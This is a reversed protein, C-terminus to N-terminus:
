VTRSYLPKDTKPKLYVDFAMCINRVFLRGRATVRIKDQDMTVLGDDIFQRLRELSDSFYADFRKPLQKEIITKDIEFDCMFRSIVQRRILDDPSLEYGLTVALEQHHIANMWEPITKINQSYINDFQSIATIGMAYLDCDAHTSYGQFNRYLSKNKQAIALEDEPKAFHDMGIYLYGAGTLKEIAMSLIQLKEEPQPLSEQHILTQHKKMWPVYAFNFLAIRDPGIRIVRDITEAFTDRTQHPLGYILDLNISQYGLKKLWGFVERTLEEPQIRNVAIQVKENFDQVGMSARNFGAERLAQLHDFSLERPDIEVGAEMDGIYDFHTRIYGGLDRIEEPTLFTPTGGGWHLQGVKRDPHLYSKMVDVEKKLAQVYEQIKVRNRTVMMNCGCFYCLSDCFPIHFYLSLDKESNKNNGRIATAYKDPTFGSSFQPATPYSTYRPGPQDYRRLLDINFEINQLHSM